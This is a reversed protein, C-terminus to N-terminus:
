LISSNHIAPQGANSCIYKLIDLTFLEQSDGAAKEEGTTSKKDVTTSSPCGESLCQSDFRYGLSIDM